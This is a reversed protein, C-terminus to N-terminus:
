ERESRGQVEHEMTERLKRLAHYVRSKVTGTPIEMVRAIEEYKLGGYLNFVLVMRHGPPLGALAQNLDMRLNQDLRTRAPATEVEVGPTEHRRWRQTRRWLDTLAHRALTFLFVRFPADPRYRGRFKFVRLFTEQVADEADHVDAGLRRFLNMLIQQNRRILRSFAEESGKQVRLMLRTDEDQHPLPSKRPM